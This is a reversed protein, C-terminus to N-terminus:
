NGDPLKFVTFRSGDASAPASLAALALAGALAVTFRKM